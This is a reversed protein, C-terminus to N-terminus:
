KLFLGKKAGNTNSLGWQKLQGKLDENEQKLTKLEKIQLHIIEVANDYSTELAELRVLLDREQKTIM